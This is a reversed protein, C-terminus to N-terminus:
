DVITLVRVDTESYRERQTRTGREQLFAEVDDALTDAYMPANTSTAKFVSSSSLSGSLLSTNLFMEINKSASALLTITNFCM